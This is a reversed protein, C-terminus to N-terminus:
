VEHAMDLKWETRLVSMINVDIYKGHRYEGERFAGEHVFGAKEYCRIARENTAYVRLWIRHLNLSEFGYKLMLHVSDTGFGKDWFTKNGIFIGMEASANLWDVRDFGINGIMHWGKSEKVEIVLIHEEMPRKIMTEFWNNEDELGLPHAMQLGQIVEPDNLWEVWQPIDSKEPARFRINKGYIM